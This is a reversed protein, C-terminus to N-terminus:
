FSVLGEIINKTQLYIVCKFEKYYFILKDWLLNTVLFNALTQGLLSDILLM